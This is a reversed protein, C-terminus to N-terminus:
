AAAGMMVPLGPMAVGGRSIEALAAQYYGAFMGAQGMNKENVVAMAVGGAVLADFLTDPLTINGSAVASVQDSREYVCVDLVINATTHYVKGGNICYLHPDNTYIGSNNSYKSVREFSAKIMAQDTNAADYAQGFAGMISKAGSGVTPLNGANAISGTVDRFFGRWPHNGIGTAADVASAIALALRGHVNIVISEILSQQFVVDDVETTTLPTTGYNTDAQAASVGAIANVHKAVEAVVKQYSTSM